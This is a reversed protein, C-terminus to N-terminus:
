RLCLIRIAMEPSLFAVSVIALAAVIYCNVICSLTHREQRTLKKNLRWLRSNLEGRQCGIITIKCVRHEDLFGYQIRFIMAELVSLM